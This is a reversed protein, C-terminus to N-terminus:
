GAQMTLFTNSACFVTEENHNEVTDCDLAVMSLIEMSSPIGLGYEHRSADFFIAKREILSGTDYWGIYGPTHFQSKRVANM